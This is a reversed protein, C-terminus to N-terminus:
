EEFEGVAVPDVEVPREPGLVGKRRKLHSRHGAIEAIWRHQRVVHAVETAVRGSEKDPQEPAPRCHPEALRLDVIDFSHEIDWASSLISISFMMTLM